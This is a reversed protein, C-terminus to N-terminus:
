IVPVIKIVDTKRGSDFATEVNKKFQSISNPGDYMGTKGRLRLAIKNRM